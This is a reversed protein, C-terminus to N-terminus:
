GRRWEMRVDPLQEENGTGDTLTIEAFGERAYFRRAGTNAQFTWLALRNRGARARDPLAAGLGRGRAAPALYLCDIEEAYRVIFGAGEECWVEAERIRRSLSTVDGERSHLVPMWGTERVWDGLTRALAPADALRAAGIM